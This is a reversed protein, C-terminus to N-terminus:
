CTKVQSFGRSLLASTGAPLENLSDPEVDVDSSRKMRSGAVVQHSIQGCDLVEVGRQGDGGDSSQCEVWKRTRGRSGYVNGGDTDMRLDRFSRGEATSDARDAASGGGVDQTSQAPTRDPRIDGMGLLFDADETQSSDDHTTSTDVDELGAGKGPGEIRRMRSTESLRLDGGPRLRTRSGSASEPSLLEDNQDGPRLRTRSGTGTHFEVGESQELNLLEDKQGTQGDTRVRTRSGTATLFGDGESRDLSLDELGRHSLFSSEPAGSPGPGNLM